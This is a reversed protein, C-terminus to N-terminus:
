EYQVARSRVRFDIAGGFAQKGGGWWGVGGEEEGGGVELGCLTGTKLWARGPNLSVLSSLIPQASVM